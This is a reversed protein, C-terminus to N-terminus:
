QYQEVSQVSGAALMSAAEVQQDYPLRSLKLATDQTMDNAQAIWKAGGTLNNAIQLLRSVARKSMGTKESIDKVFSKPTPALKASVNNGIARNMGAAQAIGRKQRLTSCKM